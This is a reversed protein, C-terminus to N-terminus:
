NKLCNWFLCVFSWFINNWFVKVTNSYNLIYRVM